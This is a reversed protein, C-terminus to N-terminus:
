PFLLVTVPSGADMGEHGLPVRVLGQAAILTRLLGSKGFLPEAVWGEGERCLRVRIFTERGPSAPLASALRARRRGFRAFPLAARGLMREMLPEVFLHFAIICSTVQGPLGLLHHGGAQAWIFPKGPAVSVGHVLLRSGAFSDFVQATLDRTGVSSGGSLLTLDDSEMSREVAACLDEMRDTVLGLPRPEGGAQRVQASLSYSNVDRVQGPAPSQTLLVVEDGSSIIGVRPRRRVEPQDVGLAALLGVDPPQLVQGGPLLVQGEQADDTPGVVHGGPAVPRTVEVLAGVPECEADGHVGRLAEPPTARRDCIARYAGEESRALPRESPAGPETRRVPRRKRGSELSRTYEVMVVADAGRPLMGGTGIRGCQGPELPFDPAAGMPVHGALHLYAPSTESAGFTDQSIVAYGDMTSRAFGPLDHPATLHHALTRGLARDLPLREGPLPPVSAAREHVEELTQVQFFPKM